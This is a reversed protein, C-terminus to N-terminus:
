CWSLKHGLWRHALGESVLIEGISVEGRYLLRLQRGYIDTDKGTTRHVNFPGENLLQVLRQTATVGLEYERRCSPAGVEPANIDAIRIKKGNLWLTDGDIVCSFRERGCVEIRGHFGTSSGSRDRELAPRRQSAFLDIAKNASREQSDDPISTTRSNAARSSPERNPARDFAVLIGGVFVTTVLVLGMVGAITGRSEGEHSPRHRVEVRSRRRKM